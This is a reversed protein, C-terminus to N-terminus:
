WKEYHVARREYGAGRLLDRLEIVGSGVGCLYFHRARDTDADIWRRRIEDSLRAYLPGSGGEVVIRTIQLRPHTVTLADLEHQYLLHNRHDAAHLLTVRRTSRATLARRIMSRIPAIATSDAIFVLEADPATGLTFAGYPGSFNLEDGVTRAFLWASGAGGPVRNFVIEFPEGDEPSSAITYPRLRNGDELPIAISIFMGPDFPPFPKDLIRLFLSRADDAHDFMREIRVRYGVRGTPNAGAVRNASPKASDAEM